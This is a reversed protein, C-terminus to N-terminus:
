SRRKFDVRMKLESDDEGVPLIAQKSMEQEVLNPLTAKRDQLLRKFDDTHLFARCICHTQLIVYGNRCTPIPSGERDSGAGSLSVALM